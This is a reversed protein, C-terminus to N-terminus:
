IEWNSLIIGSGSMREEYGALSMRLDTWRVRAGLTVLARYMAPYEGQVRLAVRRTGSRKAFDCLAGIMPELVDIGSLALKLVRLEERTRGEVLPATHCLALGVVSGGKRVIVTDGLALSETLEIERTFDYGPALREVLARVEELTEERDREGEEDGDVGEVPLELVVLEAVLDRLIRRLEALFRM